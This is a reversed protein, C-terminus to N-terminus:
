SQIKSKGYRRKARDMIRHDHGRFDHMRVGYEIKKKEFKQSIMVVQLVTM